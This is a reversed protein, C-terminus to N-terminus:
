KGCRAFTVPDGMHERLKMVLNLDRLEVTIRGQDITCLSGDELLNVLFVESAEQLAFIADATFRLNPNMDQVIEQVVRQFPLKRTLFEVSKQYKRIEMLAWIGPRYRHHKKQGGGQQQQKQTVKKQARLKKSAKISSTLMPAAGGRSGSAKIKGVQERCKQTLKLNQAKEEKKRQEMKAKHAQNLRELEEGPAEEETMGETPEAAAKGEWRIVEALPVEDSDGEQQQEEGDGNDDFSEEVTQEEDNQFVRRGYQDFVWGQADTTYYGLGHQFGKTSAGVSGARGAYKQGSDERSPVKKQLIKKGSGAASSVGGKAGKRGKRGIAKGSMKKKADLDKCNRRLTPEEVREEEESSELGKEEVPKGRRRGALLEKIRM